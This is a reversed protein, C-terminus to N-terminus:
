FLFGELLHVVDKLFHDKVFAFHQFCNTICVFFTDNLIMKIITELHMFWKKGIFPKL